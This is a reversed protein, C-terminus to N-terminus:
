TIIYNFKFSTKAVMESKRIGMFKAIQLEFNSYKIWRNLFYRLDCCSMPNFLYLSQFILTQPLYEIKYVQKSGKEGGKFFYKLFNFHILIIKM